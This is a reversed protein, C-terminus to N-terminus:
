SSYGVTCDKLVPVENMIEHLVIMVMGDAINVEYGDYISTDIFLHININNEFGLDLMEHKGIVNLYTQKTKNVFETKYTINEKPIGCAEYLVVKSNNIEKTVVPIDYDNFMCEHEKEFIRTKYYPSSISQCKCGDWANHDFNQMEYESAVALSTGSINHSHDSASAYIEKSIVNATIGEGTLGTTATSIISNTNM